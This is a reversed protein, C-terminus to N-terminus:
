KIHKFDCRAFGTISNNTFKYTLRASDGEFDNAIIPDISKINLSPIGGSIYKLFHSASEIMCIEDNKRCRKIDYDSTLFCNLDPISEPCKQKLGQTYIDKTFTVAFLVPKM